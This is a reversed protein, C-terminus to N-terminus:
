VLNYLSSEGLCEYLRSAIDPMWAKVRFKESCGDVIYQMCKKLQVVNLKYFSYFKSNVTKGYDMKYNNLYLIHTTIFALLPAAVM